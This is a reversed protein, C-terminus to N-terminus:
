VLTSKKSFSGGQLAGTSSPYVNKRCKKERNDRGRKNRSQQPRRPRWKGRMRWHQDLVQGVRPEGLVRRSGFHIWEYSLVLSKALGGKRLLQDGLNGGPDGQGGRLGGLPGGLSGSPGGPSAWPCGLSGWLVYGLGWLRGLPGGLAVLGAWPVGSGSWPGVLAGGLGGSLSWLVGSSVELAGM